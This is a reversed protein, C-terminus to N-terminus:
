PSSSAGSGTDAGASWASRPASGSAVFTSLGAYKITAYDLATGIGGSSGTVYVIDTSHVAIAYPTDYFNGPGNYRETWRLTGSPDDSLTACDYQTTSSGFSSGSVYANGAADGAIATAWEAGAGPGKYRRM